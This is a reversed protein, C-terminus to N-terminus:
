NRILEKQLAIAKPFLINNELHVHKHLDMEFKRLEELSLQITLCAIEPAVYHNTIKKIRDMLEGAREHEDEMVAVPGEIGPSETLIENRRYLKDLMRIRPFLILEEKLMHQGLENNVERFLLDVEKMEPFNSGHKNAVKELHQLILPMMEKVYRHHKEVIYDALETLTLSTFNIPPQTHSNLLLNIEESISGLKNDDKVADGLKLKGRCCFDLDYKEFISAIQSNRSVLDALTQNELKMINNKKSKNLFSPNIGNRCFDIRFIFRVIIYIM